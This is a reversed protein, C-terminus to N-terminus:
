GDLVEDIHDRLTSTFQAESFREAHRKLYEPSWAKACLRKVAAAIDEPQVTSFFTATAGEVMTDLFGGARLVASPKGFSAAELPTLGFDEHSAAVLALCREYVLRMQGDTLDQLFTVNPPAIAMLNGREPGRGVVALKLHPLQRMANVVAGVNKYPLLRSVCLLYGGNQVVPDPVNEALRRPL